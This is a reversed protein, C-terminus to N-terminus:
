IELKNDPPTISSIEDSYRRIDLLKSGARLFNRIVSNFVRESYDRNSEDSKQTPIIARRLGSFGDIEVSWELGMVAEIVDRIEALREDPLSITFDM